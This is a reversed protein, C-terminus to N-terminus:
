SATRSFALLKEYTKFAHCNRYSRVKTRKASASTNRNYPSDINIAIENKKETLSKQFFM